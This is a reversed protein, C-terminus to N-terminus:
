NMRKKNKDQQAFVKKLVDTTRSSQNSRIDKEKEEIMGYMGDLAKNTVYQDLEPDVKKVLPLKNHAKVVKRWYDRAKVEDLSQQIVPMFENFLAKHTTRQLYQTAADQNGMLIDMADKFTMQKIASVFIPKAKKAASEAARNLLTVMKDEADEFGPVAKVKKFVKQAEAPIPIKYLSKLYGDEASLLDVAKGVGKDLAEKLGEGIEQQSLGKGGKLTSEAKKAAKKLRDNLQATVLNVALVCILLTLIKKM